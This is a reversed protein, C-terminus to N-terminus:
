RVVQIWAGNLGVVVRYVAPAPGGTRLLHIGAGPLPWTGITRGYAELRGAADTLSWPVDLLGTFSIVEQPGGIVLPSANRRNVSVLRSLHDTGDLDTQRLRYFLSGDPPGIDDHIYYQATQTTGAGNVTALADFREGDLSREVTFYACNLESATTWNLRVRDRQDEATFTLLEVPLTICQITSIYLANVANNAAGPTENGAILASTFNAALRYNGTNFFIVRGLHDLTSIRLIDIGGSNMNQLGPGYSVGHFYRGNPDRTQAADGQDRYAMNIWNGIGYVCTAYQSTLLGNPSTSCAELLPSNAPLVYIKDNPSLDSPDDPPVTPNLDAQNYILILSGVPVVSWQAANTFRFHGQSVGSGSMSNGFGNNAVGNNDDVKIGRIDITTCPTGVALLEIYEKNGSAGNSMENVVLGTGLPTYPVTLEVDDIAISPDTGSGDDDNVWRFGLRVNPNNNASAPLAVTFITWTGQAACAGVPTKPMDSLTSWVLGDFYELTANDTTTVGGEIYKFRLTITSWASLNIVPSVARVNTQSSQCSCCFACLAPPCSADYAAGCDGTPCFFCANPSGCTGNNGIHLTENNGCGSGCTGVPNGNEQCSIFWANPCAGNTGTSVVTWAGQPGVYSSALCNQTCTNEFEETWISLQGQCQLACLFALFPLSWRPVPIRFARCTLSNRYPDGHDHRPAVKVIRVIRAERM